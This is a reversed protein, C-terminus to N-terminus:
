MGYVDVFEMFDQFDVDADDDFDAVPGNPKWGPNGDSLGYVAVFATFDLDDIDGDGDFDGERVYVAEATSDENISFTVTAQGDPQNAGNVVWRVFTYDSFAEPATLNVEANDNIAASYNTTGSTSEPLGGIAVGTIPTSQVDLTRKIVAYEAVATTAGTITFTLTTQGEPQPTGAYAAPGEEYEHEIEPGTLARSYVKVDAVKGKFYTGTENRAIWVNSGSPITSYTSTHEDVMQGNVYLRLMTGDFTGAVYSWAGAAVNGKANNGGTRIYWWCRGDKYYTLLYSSFDKGVVGHEGSPVEDPFIWASLTIAETIDLSAGAGCDVCDNIGDFALAYGEDTPVWIAGAITGDNGNGSVDHAEVGSGENLPYHAALDTVLHWRVFEYDTDGESATEPATLSVQSNEDLVVEYNTLGSAGPPDGAVDVGTIPGSRVNLTSTAPAATRVLPDGIITMGFHWWIETESYPALTDFWEKLAQGMSEDRGLPQYFAYFALMSGTKTSGVTTLSTDSSNFIYSAGLCNSDTFRCASCAYLNYFLARPPIARIDSNWLWGGRTFSHGSSSSHCALQIFEYSMSALRNDRYDDRNTDPAIIAQNDPYADAIDTWFHPFPEWDDETYTLAFATRPLSNMYYNHLKELYANIIDAETGGTMRSADIRGIFIEPGEDGSGAAHSDYIGPQMPSTTENDYWEGDLDCLFLDCPFSKYGDKGYDNEIEYWACPVDGFFVCGVLDQSQGQIFVRLDEATGYTCEYVDVQYGKGEVDGVYRNLNTQVNPLLGSNIIVLVRPQSKARRGVGAKARRLANIQLPKKERAALYEAYTGPRGPGVWRLVPIRSYDVLDENAGQGFSPTAAALVAALSCVLTLSHKFRSRGFTMMTMRRM